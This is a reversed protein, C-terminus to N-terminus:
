GLPVGGGGNVLDDPANGPVVDAPTQTPDSATLIDEKSTVVVNFLPENYEYKTM